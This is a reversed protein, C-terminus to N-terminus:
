KIILNSALDFTKNIFVKGNFEKKGTYEVRLRGNAANFDLWDLSLQYQSQDPYINYGHVQAVIQEEANPNPQWYVLMNGTTSYKGAKNITLLVQASNQAKNKIVSLQNIDVSAEVQGQRAIVPITFALLPEVNIKMSSNTQNNPKKEIPLPKFALHSRYEADPLDKPRRFMLRVSQKENPQLTVQRPSIRLMPSALNFNSNNLENNALAQYGGTSKAVKEEWEIRYTRVQNTPNILIVKASRQREDLVVRTPTILLQAQATQNIFFLLFTLFTKRKLLM